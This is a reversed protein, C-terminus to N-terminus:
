MRFFKKYMDKCDKSCDCKRDNYSSKMFYSQYKEPKAVYRICNAKLPCEEGFCMTIDLGFVDYYMNLVENRKKNNIINM